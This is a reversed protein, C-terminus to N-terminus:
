VMINAIDNYDLYKFISLWVDDCVNEFDYYEASSIENVQENVDM